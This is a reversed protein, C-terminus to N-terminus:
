SIRKSDSPPLSALKSMFLPSVILPILPPPAALLPINTVPPSLLQNTSTSAPLTQNTTAPLPPTTSPCAGKSLHSRLGRRSTFSRGCDACSVSTSDREHTKLHTTLYAKCKFTKQCTQCQVHSDTHEARHVDLKSKRNFASGCDSCVYDRRGTHLTTHVDLISKRAFGRGCFTCRYPREGTHSREHVRVDYESPFTRGCFSCKSLRSRHYRRNHKRWAALSDFKESCEPCTVPLPHRALHDRLDSRTPALFGCATCTLGRKSGLTMGAAAVDSSGSVQGEGVSKGHCVHSTLREQTQYRKRCTPCQFPRQQGVHEEMHTRLTARDSFTTNCARCLFLQDPGQSHLRAIHDKLHANQSFSQGCESCGFPREGTHIRLHVMLSTRSSLQKNCINCLAPSNRVVKSGATIVGTGCESKMHYTLTSKYRFLASCQNCKFKCASKISGKKCKKSGRRSVSTDALFNAVKFELEDQQEEDEDDKSDDDDGGGDDDDDDDDGEEESNTLDKRVQEEKLVGPITGNALAEEGNEVIEEKIRTKLQALTVGCRPVDPDDDDDNDSFGDSDDMRFDDSDEEM